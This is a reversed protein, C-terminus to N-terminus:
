LIYALQQYLLPTIINSYMRVQEATKLTRVHQSALECLEKFDAVQKARLRIVDETSLNPNLLLSM